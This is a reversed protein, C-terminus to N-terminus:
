VTVGGAPMPAMTTMCAPMAAAKASVRFAGRQHTTIWRSNEGSTTPARMSSMAGAQYRNAKRSSDATNQDVKRLRTGSNRVL